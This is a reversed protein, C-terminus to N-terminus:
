DSLSYKEHIMRIAEHSHYPSSKPENLARLISLLERLKASDGAEGYAYVAYRWLRERICAAGLACLHEQPLHEEGGTVYDLAFSVGVYTLLYIDLLDALSYPIEADEYWQRLLHIIGEYEKPQARMKKKLAEACACFKDRTIHVGRNKLCLLIELDGSQVCETVWASIKADPVPVDILAYVDIAELDHNDLAADALNRMEPHSKARELLKLAHYSIRGEEGQIREAAWAYWQEVTINPFVLGYVRFDEELDAPTISVSIFLARLSQALDIQSGKRAAVYAACLLNGRASAREAYEWFEDQPSLVESVDKRINAVRKDAGAAGVEQRGEPISPEHESM